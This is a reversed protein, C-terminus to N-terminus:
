PRTCAAFLNVGGDEFEIRTTGRGFESGEYLRDMDEETRHILRWDIVYDMLAKNPNNPHFNGLIMEGGPRLTRSGWNMLKTVLKDNFYDILGISYMLDQDALDIKQRGMALYILNGHLARMREALGRREIEGQVQDLAQQDIDILTVDIRAADGLEDIVDFLERAPGCAMSTIRVARDPHADLHRRIARALLGRRNRVAAAAPEDLFCRDLLPGLRGTGGAQDDYIWDISKFDGAYGRPKSYLREASKTLLLYPLVERQVRGGVEERVAEPLGSADGITDNLLRVFSIFGTRIREIIADNLVGGEQIATKDAQQLLSKFEDVAPALGAWVDNRSEETQREDALLRSYLQERQRLRRSATLAISRFFRAGFEPRADIADRLTEFPVSLLQTNEIAFVTASAPRVELFGMEGIMEGPGLTALRREPLAALRVGVLGALVFVLADSPAGEQLIVGNSIVQGERGTELLWAIDDDHLDTLFTLGDNM